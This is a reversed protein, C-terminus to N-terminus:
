IIDAFRREYNQFYAIGSIFLFISTSVSLFLGPLYIPEETSLLSWRFGEIISVIPNLYYIIKWDEPIINSSFGVPSIYLGLQLLFPIIYRFDRYKINIASLWYGLGIASLILITTFFLLTFIKYSIEINNILLIPIFILLTLSFDVLNVLVTSSPIIIRPFYVKNILHPNNILSQSSEQIISSFLTWPIIASFVMLEYPFDGDSQLKAIKGFIFSFIIMTLIPRLIAWLSGIVTQKYRVKLDRSALHYFLDKYEIIEKLISIASSKAEIKTIKM